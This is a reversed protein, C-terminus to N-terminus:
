SSNQLIYKVDKTLYLYSYCCDYLQRVQCVHIHQHASPVTDSPTGNQRACNGAQHSVLGMLRRCVHVVAPLSPFHIADTKACATNPFWM